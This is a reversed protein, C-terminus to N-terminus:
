QFCATAPAQSVAVGDSTNIVLWCGDSKTDRVITFTRGDVGSSAVKVIRAQRPEPLQIKAHATTTILVGIVLGALLWGIRKVIRMDTEKQLM